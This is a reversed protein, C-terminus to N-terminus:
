SNHTPGEPAAIEAAALRADERMQPDLHHLFPEILPLARPDHTAGLIYLAHELLEPEMTTMATALPEVLDLPLRHHNFAESISNLASERVKTEPENVALSVLRGVVLHAADTDLATGRLLDGLSDAAVDRRNPERDTLAELAKIMDNM